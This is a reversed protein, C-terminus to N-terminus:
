AHRDAPKGPIRDCPHPPSCGEQAGARARAIFRRGLRRVGVHAVFRLYVDPANPLTRVISLKELTARDTRVDSYRPPHPNTQYNSAVTAAESAGGRSL